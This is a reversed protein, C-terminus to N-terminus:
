TEARKDFDLISLATDAVRSAIQHATTKSMGPPRQTTVAHYIAEHLEHKSVTVAPGSFPMSGQRARAVSSRAALIEALRDTM